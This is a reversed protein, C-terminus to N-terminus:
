ANLRISVSFKLKLSLGSTKCVALLKKLAFHTPVLSTVHAITGIFIDWFYGVNTHSMESLSYNLYLTFLITSPVRGKGFVRSANFPETNHRKWNM